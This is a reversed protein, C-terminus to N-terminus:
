YLEVETPSRHRPSTRQGSRRTRLRGRSRRSRHRRAAFAAGPRLARAGHSGGGATPTPPDAAKLPPCRPPPPRGRCRCGRHRLRRSTARGPPLQRSRAPPAVQRSARRQPLHPSRCLRDASGNRSSRTLSRMGWMCRRGLDADIADITLNQLHNQTRDSRQPLLAPSGAPSTPPVIRGTLHALPRLRAIRGAFPASCGVGGGPARRERRGGASQGAPAADSVLGAAARSPLVALARPRRRRMARLGCPRNPAHRVVPAIRVAVVGAFPTQSSSSRRTKM